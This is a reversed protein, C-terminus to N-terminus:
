TKVWITIIIVFALLFRYYAFPNLTHNQLFRLLYKIAIYGTVASIIIGAIFIDPRIIDGSQILKRAELLSAGAVVPTSLLFSFRASAQRQLGRMLGAIITIGSRSVGPVLAVAQALGIIVADKRSIKDIGAGRSGKKIREAVIMLAAVSSLTFTILLPSRIKEIADHFIFGVAAAPITAIMIHWILGDKKKATKILSLWDKRFYFLLSILTGFHLAVSFSLTNVVGDWRFFWPLLILHASSSVPIFETLGQLIGLIIAEIM